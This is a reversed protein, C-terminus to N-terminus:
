RSWAFFLNWWRQRRAQKKLKEIEEKQEELEKKLDKM